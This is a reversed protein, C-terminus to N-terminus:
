GDKVEAHFLYYEDSFDFSYVNNYIQSPTGYLEILKEVSDGVKLGRPTVYQDSTTSIYSVEGSLLQLEIGDYFRKELLGNQEMIVQLPRAQLAETLEESNMRLKLQGFQLDEMTLSDKEDNNNVMRTNTYIDFSDTSGLEENDISVLIGEFTLDDTVAAPILKSIELKATDAEIYARAVEYNVTSSHLKPFIAILTNKEFYSEDINTNKEINLGELLLNYASLDKIILSTTEETSIADKNQIFFEEDYEAQVKWATYDCTVTLAQNKTQVAKSTNVAAADSLKQPQCGAVSFLMYIIIIPVFLRSM